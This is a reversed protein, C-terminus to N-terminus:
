ANDADKRFLGLTMLFTDMLHQRGIWMDLAAAVEPLIRYNVQLLKLLWEIQVAPDADFVMSRISYDELYTEHLSKAEDCMWSFQRVTEWRMTGDDNYVARADVTSPTPLKWKERGFKIRPGDQTYPRRLESETPPQRPPKGDSQKWIGVHYHPEGSENRAFSPRWDQANADYHTLPSHPSTWGLMLGTKSDPGHSAPIVNQSGDVICSLGSVKAIDALQDPKADPIFVLFHM